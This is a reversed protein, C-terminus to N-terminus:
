LWRYDTYAAYFEMMTFEPNHRPSEGENRFNRNIEFVREFGGVILRKLYLEPAIRLFMQMDLAKHHTVIPKADEGVQI